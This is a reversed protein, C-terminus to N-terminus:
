FLDKESKVIEGNELDIEYSYDTNGQEFDVDWIDRGRDRDLEVELERIEAETLGAHNLAIEIARERTITAQTKVDSMLDSTVSSNNPTTPNDNENKPSTAIGCGCLTLLFCLTLIIAFLKKM